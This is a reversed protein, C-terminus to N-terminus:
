LDYHLIKHDGLLLCEDRVPQLERFVPQEGIDVGHLDNWGPNAIFDLSRFREKMPEVRLEEDGFDRIPQICTQRFRERQDVELCVLDLEVAMQVGTAM